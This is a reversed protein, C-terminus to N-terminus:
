SNPMAKYLVNRAGAFPEECDCWVEKLEIGLVNRTVDQLEFKTFGHDREENIEILLYDFNVGLLGKIVEIEFGEVDVKILDFHVQGSSSTKYPGVEVAVSEVEGGSILNTGANQQSFSGQASKNRVFFLKLAKNEDALGRRQLTWRGIDAGNAELYPWCVPNPEVSTVQCGFMRTATAGFQGINAGVDLINLRRPDAVNVRSIVDSVMRAYEPMLLLGIKNDSCLPSGLYRVHGTFPAFVSTVTFLMKDRARVNEQQWWLMQLKIVHRIRSSVSKVISINM